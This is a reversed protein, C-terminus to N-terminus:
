IYSEIENYYTVFLQLDAHSIQRVSLDSGYRCVVVVVVVVVVVIVVIIVVVVVVIVVVVVVAAAAAAAAVVVVVVVAAAAVAAAAILRIHSSNLGPSDAHFDQISNWPNFQKKNKPNYIKV